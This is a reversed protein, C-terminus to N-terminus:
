KTTMLFFMKPIGVSWVFLPVQKQKMGQEPQDVINVHIQKIHPTM